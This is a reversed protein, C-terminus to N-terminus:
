FALFWKLMVDSGGVVHGWFADVVLGGLLLGVDVRQASDEIEHFYPARGEM